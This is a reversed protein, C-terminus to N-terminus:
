PRIDRASSDIVRVGKEIGEASISDNAETRRQARPKQILPFMNMHSDTGVLPSEIIPAYQGDRTRKSHRM